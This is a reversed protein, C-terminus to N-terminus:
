RRTSVTVTFKADRAIQETPGVVARARTPIATRTGSAGCSGARVCSAPPMRSCGHRSSTPSPRVPHFPPNLAIFSASADARLGLLDDRAVHVRDAVDNAAVTARASAVAVASQDSSWV